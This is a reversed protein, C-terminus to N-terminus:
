SEEDDQDQRLAEIRTIPAENLLQHVKHKNDMDYKEGYTAELEFKKVRVLWDIKEYLQNM